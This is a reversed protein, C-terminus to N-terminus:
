ARNGVHCRSDLVDRRGVGISCDRRMFIKGFPTQCWAQFATANLDAYQSAQDHLFRDLSRLTRTPNYFRQGLARKLDVYQALAPALRSSFTANARTM